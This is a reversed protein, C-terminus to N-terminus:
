GRRCRSQSAELHAEARFVEVFKCCGGGGFVLGKLEFFFFRQSLFSFGSFNQGLISFFRTSKFPILSDSTQGTCDLKSAAGCLCNVEELSVGLVM